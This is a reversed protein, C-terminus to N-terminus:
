GATGLVFVTAGGVSTDFSIVGPVAAMIGEMTGMPPQGLECTIILKASLVVGPGPTVSIALILRGGFFNTPFKQPVGSGYSRFSLVSVASWTGSAVVSGNSHMHIFWGGGTVTKAAANFTGNGALELIDGNPAAAKDPALSANIAALFGDGAHFVWHQPSTAPTASASAPLLLLALVAIGAIGTLFKRIRDSAGLNARATM